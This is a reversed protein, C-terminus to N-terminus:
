EHSFNGENKTPNETKTITVDANQGHLEQFLTLDFGMRHILRKIEDLNVSKPAKKTKLLELLRLYTDKNTSDRDPYAKVLPWNEEKGFENRLHLMEQFYNEAAEPIQDKPDFTHNLYCLHQLAKSIPSKLGVPNGKWRRIIVEKLSEYSAQLDPFVGLLCSNIRWDECINYLLFQYDDLDTYFTAVSHLAEHAVMFPWCRTDFDRSGSGVWLIEPWGEKKYDVGWTDFGPLEIVRSLHHKPIIRAHELLKQSDWLM